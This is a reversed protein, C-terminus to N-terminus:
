SMDGAAATLAVIAPLVQLVWYLLYIICDCTLLHKFVCITPKTIEADTIEVGAVLASIAPASSIQGRTELVSGSSLACCNSDSVGAEHLKVNTMRAKGRKSYIM